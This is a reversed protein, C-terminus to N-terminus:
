IIYMLYNEFRKWIVPVDWSLIVLVDSSKDNLNRLVFGFTRRVIRVDNYLTCEHLWKRRCIPLGHHEYLIIIRFSSEFHPFSIESFSIWDLAARSHLDLSWLCLWNTSRLTSTLKPFYNQKLTKPKSNYIFRFLSPLGSGANRFSTHDIELYKYQTRM